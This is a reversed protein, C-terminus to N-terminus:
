EATYTVCSDPPFPLIYEVGPDCERNNLGDLINKYYNQLNADGGSWAAIAADILDSAPGEWLGPELIVASGGDLRNMVNFIFALLQQALQERPDGNANSDVLFHSVEAKPTCEGAGDIIGDTIKDNNYAPAVCAGGPDGPSFHGDFPEDGEEFYSSPSSYPALANVYDIDDQGLENLGNKNHWYGKTSFCATGTVVNGFELSIELPDQCDKVEINEIITDTTAVWHCASPLVEEVTYLGGTLGCFRACGNEDTCQEDIVEGNKDGARLLFKIGPVLIGDDNVKNNNLDYFKIVKISSLPQNGFVVTHVEAENKTVEGTFCVTASTAPDTQPDGDIYVVTPKWGKCEDWLIEEEVQWCGNWAVICFDTRHQQQQPTECPEECPETVTILWGEEGPNAPIEPEDEDWVGDGDCDKFKQVCLFQDVKGKVKFNDTKSFRPIFGWKGEQEDGDEAEDYCAVPTVWVKYVGGNNPTDDFPYLQVVVAGYEDGYDADDKTSHSASVIVGDESVTFVRSGIGDSSLLTQGSPDTVQFYYDGEPLAAAGVPAGPGPGGDLYVHRKNNYINMNVPEGSQDTTFIGGSLQFAECISQEDQGHAFQAVIGLSFVALATTIIKYSNNSKM